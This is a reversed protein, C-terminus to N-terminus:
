APEALPLEARKAWAIAGPPDVCNTTLQTLLVAPYYTDRMENLHGMSIKEM